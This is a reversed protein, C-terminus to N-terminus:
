EELEIWDWYILDRDAAWDQCALYFDEEAVIEEVLIGDYLEGYFRFYKM